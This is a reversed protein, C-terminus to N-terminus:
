FRFVLLDVFICYSTASESAAGRCVSGCPLRIQPTVKHVNHGFAGGSVAYRLPIRVSPSVKVNSHGM